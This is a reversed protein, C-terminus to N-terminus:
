HYVFYLKSNYVIARGPLLHKLPVVKMINKPQFPTILDRTDMFKSQKKLINKHYDYSSLTTIITPITYQYVKHKQMHISDVVEKKAINILIPPIERALPYKNLEAFIILM